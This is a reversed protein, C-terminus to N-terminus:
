SRRSGAFFGLINLLSILLNFISVYLSVTALIYNDEGGHIIQSTRFMILGSSLLVFLASVMVSFLEVKLFVSAIAALFAVTIGVFLMGALYSFDQRTILVYASLVLFVLGTGGVAATVIEGGNAFTSLYYAVVPALSLGMFGTFAFVLFLGWRSRSLAQTLFLLGFMGILTFGPGPVPLLGTLACIAVLASFLVTLSLLFYTKRLVENASVASDNVVVYGSGNSRMCVVRVQRTVSFSDSWRM